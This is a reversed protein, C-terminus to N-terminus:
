PNVVSRLADILDSPLMGREGLEAAIDGARAHALVAMRAAIELDLGQAVFAALVGTLADGSGGTAMGPNGLPCVALEVGAILSGAGKLVAVGGYRAVLARAAAARDAEIEATTVGLLRAAEGPHPTLAWNDRRVQSEALLNLADADVVMPLDTRLAQQWLARGWDNQGLGPGIALVRAKAALSVLAEPSEVARFMGEPQSAALLATHSARTAVSVLGAGARLAARTALLIAGAFGHDGGVLLVQGHSGKHASRSRRPLSHALDDLSLLEALPVISDQAQVGLDDFRREGAFAPGQGTYLGFKRGVFSLSLDARVVAGPAAGTDANLGSPIDIAMVWANAANIEEIAAAAAHQPARSSGIGYIADVILSAGQLVGPSYAEISGHVRWAAMALAAERGPPPEGLACVRVECGAAKALCALEYGDGGNNGPGCVVDIRRAHPRCERLVRWASAAAQRMLAYGADVKGGTAGADLERVQAASYLRCKERNQERVAEM